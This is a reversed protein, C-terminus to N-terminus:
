TINYQGVKRESVELIDRTHTRKHDGHRGTETLLKVLIINRNIEVIEYMLKTVLIHEKIIQWTALTLSDNKFIDRVNLNIELTHEKMVEM